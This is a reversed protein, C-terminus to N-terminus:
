FKGPMKVVQFFDKYDALHFDAELDPNQFACTKIGLERAPKLDIERDGIVLDLHYKEHLYQYADPAPKKRFGDDLTVIETFYKKLDYYNLIEYTSERAKHTVIVNLNAAKLVEEVHPFPPKEKPHLQKELAHYNEDFFKKDIGFHEVAAESSIKMYKMIEEESVDPDPILKKVAKVIAPYTDFLTGDFDWLINVKIAEGKCFQTILVIELRSCIERKLSYVGLFGARKCHQVPPPGPQKGRM